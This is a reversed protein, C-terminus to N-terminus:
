KYDNIYKLIIGFGGMFYIKEELKLPYENILYELDTKVFEPYYESEYSKIIRYGIYGLLRNKPLGYDAIIIKGKPKTVRLTEHLIKQRADISVEHLCSAICSADFVGDEFSMRTADEKQFRVSPYRNKKKAERLADDSIDIGVVDYGEKGYAFAQEGSGTCVDLVKSGKRINSIKVIRDRHSSILNDRGFTILRKYIEISYKTRTM